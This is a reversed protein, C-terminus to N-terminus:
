VAEDSDTTASATEIAKEQQNWHPGRLAPQSHRWDVLQL